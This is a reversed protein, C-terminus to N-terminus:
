GNTPQKNSVKEILASFALLALAVVWLYGGLKLGQTMNVGGTTPCGGAPIVLSTFAAILLIVASTKPQISKPSLVKIVVYFYFLNALWRPELFLIGAWGVMLVEYGLYGSSYCKFVQQTLSLAFLVLSILALVIRPNM